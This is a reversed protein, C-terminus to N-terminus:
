FFKIYVDSQKYEVDTIHKIDCIHLLLKFVKNLIHKKKLDHFDYKDIQLHHLCTCAIYTM